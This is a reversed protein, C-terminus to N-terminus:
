TIKYYLDVFLKPIILSVKNPLEILYKDNGCYLAIGNSKFKFPENDSIENNLKKAIFAGQQYAVQANRPYTQNICDGGAFIKHYDVLQLSETLKWNNTLQNPRTGTAFIVNGNDNEKNYFRGPVLEINNKKLLKIIKEKSESSLYSYLENYNLSDIIKVNYGIDSLYFSLETGSPGAGVINIKTNKNPDINNIVNKWHFGQDVSSGLGCVVFKNGYFYSNKDTVIVKNELDIKNIKDNHYEDVKKSLDFDNYNKNNKITSLLLPTNVFNNQSINIIYYKKRNINDLFGKALWGQGLLYVTKRNDDTFNFKQYLGVFFPM